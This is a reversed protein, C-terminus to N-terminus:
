ATNGRKREKPAIVFSRLDPASPSERVQGSRPGFFAVAGRRNRHGSRGRGVSVAYWDVAEVRGGSLAGPAKALRHFLPKQRV